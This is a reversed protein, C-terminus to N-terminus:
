PVNEIATSVNHRIYESFNADCYSIIFQFLKSIFVLCIVDKLHEYKYICYIIFSILDLLM